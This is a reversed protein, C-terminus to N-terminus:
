QIDHERTGPRILASKPLIRPPLLEALVAKEDFDETIRLSRSRCCPGWDEHTEDDFVSEGEGGYGEEVIVGEPGDFRTGSIALM